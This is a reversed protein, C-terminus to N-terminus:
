IKNKNQQIKYVQEAQLSSHRYSSAKKTHIQQIIRYLLIIFPNTQSKERAGSSPYGKMVKWFQGVTGCSKGSAEGAGHFLGLGMVGSSLNIMLPFPWMM